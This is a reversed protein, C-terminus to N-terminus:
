LAADPEGLVLRTQRGASDETVVSELVRWLGNEGCGTRSIRLLEGPWAFFLDPVTLEVRRRGAESQELQFQGSYRMARQGSAGTMTLIRRAQGGQATFEENVVREATKRKKDQVLIESLVGYRRERGQFSTVPVTDDLVRIKTDEFPAAVLRGERDFRPPLKGHYRVFDHVVKWRSSGSAISFNQCPPIDAAQAVEIGYPIVHDTLIDALTAASYDAAEAENDLLLAAMNRGSLVVRSGKRDRTWEVEDILGTFVRGEGEYAAFRVAKRYIEEEGEQWPLELWFSDCPVGCAYELKWALPVPLTYARGEYTVIQGTM